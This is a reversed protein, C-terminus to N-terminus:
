CNYVEDSDRIGWFHYSMNKTYDTLNGFDYKKNQLKDLQEILVSEIFDNLTLDKEHAALMIDYLEDKDLDLEMSVRTDYELENFIAYSKELMDKSNDLDIFDVHDYANDYSVGKEVSEAAFTTIYDPHIWRFSIEKNYDHAEVMYVTQDKTDFTASLSYNEDIGFNEKGFCSIMFADPGFCDWLFKSGDNIQYNITEFFDKLTIM